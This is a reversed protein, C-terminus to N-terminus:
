IEGRATFDFPNCIEVDMEQFDRINRTAVVMRHVRAMAAILADGSLDDSRGAMLRAWQRFVEGDAAVITYYAMVDDLWRELEQAKPADQRRTMEIGSQIEAIVMAPIALQHTPISRRWALVAGHPRTKRLESIINTDLLYTV